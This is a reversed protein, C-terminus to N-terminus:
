TFFREILGAVEEPQEHHLMHGAGALTVYSLQSFLGTLRGESIEEAMRHALESAGGTVFLVPAQVARWCAEAQDRQYLVPNVRKHRPDAWLEVRGDERTRGWARAIFEIRDPSTRPNRRALVKILQAYDDYAAFRPPDRIEDLWQAYRMPAQDPTTRELGFGEFSAVRRVRKPRVGAYLLAIAGGMSHGALDVAAGPAVHDLLAELDALYDPFWYGEVPRQTRGFGRLDLALCTRQACLHDVVFQWTEGTDGWGHVLILPDPRAGQWRYLQFDLGRLRLTERQAPRRVQYSM